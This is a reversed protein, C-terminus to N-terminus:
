CFVWCVLYTTFGGVWRFNKIHRDKDLKQACEMGDVFERKSSGPDRRKKFTSPSQPHSSLFSEGPLVLTEGKKLPQAAKPIVLSVTEPIFLSVPLLQPSVETWTDLKQHHAELKSSDWLSFLSDLLSRGWKHPPSPRSGRGPFYNGLFSSMVIYHRQQSNLSRARIHM